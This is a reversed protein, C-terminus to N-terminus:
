KITRVVANPVDCVAFAVALLPLLSQAMSCTPTDLGASPWFGYSRLGFFVRFGLFDPPQWTESKLREEAKPNRGESKGEDQRGAAPKLSATRRANLWEVALPLRVHVLVRNNTQYENNEAPGQRRACRRRRLAM